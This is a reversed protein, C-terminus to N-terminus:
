WTDPTAGFYSPMLLFDDFTKNVDEFEPSDFDISHLADDNPIVVSANNGTNMQNDEIPPIESGGSGDQLNLASTSKLNNTGSLLFDFIRMAWPAPDWRERAENMVMQCTDLSARYLHAFDNDSQRFKRYFVIGAIFFGPFIEHPMLGVMSNTMLTLATTSIMQAASEAIKFSTSNIDMGLGLENKTSPKGIHIFILHHNFIIRLSCAFVSSLNSNRSWDLQHPLQAQWRNSMNHLDDITTSNTSPGFRLEVIKRLILSLKAIQIQYLCHIHCDPNSTSEACTPDLNFDTLGLIDTDCQSINIRFPRGLLAACYADRVALTWWLRRLLGRAKTDTQASPVCRNIGLSEAITVGFGIWSCPNWYSKMQPGWFSLMLVTQLLVVKNTEYGVDFLIKAKDYYSRRLHWRSKVGAKHVINMDCFTAGIFCVAHLLIWPLKQQKHLYIFNEKDVISYLPYFRELFALILADSVENSHGDFASKSNLYSIDQPTMHSPHTNRQTPDEKGLHSDPDYLSAQESRQLEELAFTLPSSESFFVVGLKPVVGEHTHGQKELFDEFMSALSSRKYVATKAPNNGPLSMAGQASGTQFIELVEGTYQPAGPMSDNEMTKSIEDTEISVADLSSEMPSNYPSSSGNHGAIALRSFGTDVDKNGPNLTEKSANLANEDFQGGLHLNKRLHIGRRSTNLKCTPVADQRCRSCPTGHQAADCRVKRQSCKHCARSSRSRFTRSKQADTAM